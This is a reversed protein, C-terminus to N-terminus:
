EIDEFVMRGCNKCKFKSKILWGDQYIIKDTKCKLDGPNKCYECSKKFRNILNTVKNGM